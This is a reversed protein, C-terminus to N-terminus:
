GGAGPSPHASASRRRRPRLAVTRVKAKTGAQADIILVDAPIGLGRNLRRIMSLSLPRKRSLVESVKSIAGIYPILDKRTLQMQDMRFLIAEVPDAKVPPVTKREFDEIVLSLLQLEDEEASDPELDTAMLASLRGIAAEYARVDKIIKVDM